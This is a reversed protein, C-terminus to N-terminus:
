FPVEESATIFNDVKNVIRGNYVDQVIHIWLETDKEINDTDIDLNETAILKQDTVACYFRAFDIGLAKNSFWTKVERTVGDKAEFSITPVYNMGDRKSNMESVFSLLKGKYWGEAAPIGKAMDNASIQLKPM